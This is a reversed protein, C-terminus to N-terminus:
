RSWGTVRRVLDYVEEDLWPPRETEGLQRRMLLVSYIEAVIEHTYERRRYGSNRVLEALPVPLKELYRSGAEIDTTSARDISLAHGWEHWAVRTLAWEFSKADLGDFAPHRRNILVVRLQPIWIGLAANARAIEAEPLGGRDASRLLGDAYTGLPRSCVEWQDARIAELLARDARPLSWWANKVIKDADM